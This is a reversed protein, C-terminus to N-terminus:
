DNNTVGMNSEYYELVEDPSGEALTKGHEIWIARNCLERLTNAQHSVLVVTRNSRIREKMVESSKKRFSVDGVGLTEDVLLVSPDFAIAASFGLRAKMGSSYTAMPQEFAAGLESFEKIQDLQKQVQAKSMGLLMGMLIANDRGNLNGQTGASLSLLTAKVGDARFLEGHTPLLIGALIQLLTSKGAGNRGIVGLSDGERLTLSVDELAWKGSRRLMGTRVKFKFGINAARILERRPKEEADGRGTGVSVAPTLPRPPVTQTSRDFQSDIWNYVEIDATNHRRILDVLQADPEATVQDKPRANVHVIPLDLKLWDNIYKISADYRETMGVFSLRSWYDGIMRSQRDSFREDTIHDVLDFKRNGHREHHHFESLVRAVPERVFTLLTAEPLVDAYRSFPFHGCFFRVGRDLAAAALSAPDQEGDGYMYKLVIDSTLPINPGYDFLTRKPGIRRM